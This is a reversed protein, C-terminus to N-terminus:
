ENKDEILKLDDKNGTYWGVQKCYQDAINNEANYDQTCWVVGSFTNDNRPCDLCRGLESRELQLYHYSPITIPQGNFMTVVYDCNFKLNMRLALIIYPKFKAKLVEM